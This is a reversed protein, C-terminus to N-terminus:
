QNDNVTFNYEEALRDWTFSDVEGTVDLNNLRQFLRVADSTEFNYEGSPSVHPIDYYLSLANLMIQVFLSLESIEGFTLKYDKSSPYPVIGRRNKRQSIDITKITDENL